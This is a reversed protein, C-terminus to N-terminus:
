IQPVDRFADSGALLPVFAGKGGGGGGGGAEFAAGFGADANARGGGGGGSRNALLTAATVDPAVSAGISGGGIGGGRRATGGTAHRAGM